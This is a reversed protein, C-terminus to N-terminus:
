GASHAVAFTGAISLTYGQPILTVLVRALYSRFDVM